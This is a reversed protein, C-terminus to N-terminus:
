TAGDHNRASIRYVLNYVFWVMTRGRSATRGELSCDHSGGDRGTERENEQADAAGV